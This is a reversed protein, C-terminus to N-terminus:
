EGGEKEQVVEERLRTIISDLNAIKEETQQLTLEREKIKGKIRKRMGESDASDLNKHLTNLIRQVDAKAEEYREKKNELKESLEKADQGTYEPQEDSCSLLLGVICLM